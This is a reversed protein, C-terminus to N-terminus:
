SFTDIILQHEQWKLGDKRGAKGNKLLARFFPCTCVQAKHTSLAHELPLICASGGKYLVLGLRQHPLCLIGGM